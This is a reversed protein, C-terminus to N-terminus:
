AIFELAQAAEAQATLQRRREIAIRLGAL